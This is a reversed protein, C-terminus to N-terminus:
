QLSLIWWNRKAKQHCKALGEGKEKLLLCSNRSEHEGKEVYQAKRQSRNTSLFFTHKVQPTMEYNSFMGSLFTIYDRWHKLMMEQTEQAHGSHANQWLSSEVHFIDAPVWLKKFYLFCFGVESEKKGYWFKFYDPRAFYGSYPKPAIKPQWQYHCHYLVSSSLYLFCLAISVISWFVGKKNYSPYKKKLHLVQSNM